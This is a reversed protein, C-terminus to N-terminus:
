VAIIDLRPDNDILPEFIFAAPTIVGASGLPILFSPYIDEKEEDDLEFRYKTPMGPMKCQVISLGVCSPNCAEFEMGTPRTARIVDLDVYDYVAHFVGEKIHMLIIKDDHTNAIIGVIDNNDTPNPIFTTQYVPPLDDSMLVESRFDYFYKIRPQGNGDLNKLWDINPPCDPKLDQGIWFYVMFSYNNDIGTQDVYVSGYAM